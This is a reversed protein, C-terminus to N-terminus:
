AIMFKLHVIYVTDITKSKLFAFFNELSMVVIIILGVM